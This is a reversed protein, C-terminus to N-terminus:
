CTKCQHYPDLLAASKYFRDIVYSPQGTLRVIHTNGYEDPIELAWNTWIALNLSIDRESANAALMAISDHVEHM